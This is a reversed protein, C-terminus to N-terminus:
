DGTAQNSEEREDGEEGESFEYRNQALALQMIEKESPVRRIEAGLSMEGRRENSYQVQTRDPNVPTEFIYIELRDSAIKRKWLREALLGAHAPKVAPYNPREKESLVSFLRM